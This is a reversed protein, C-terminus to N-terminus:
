AASSEKFKEQLRSHGRLLFPTKLLFNVFLMTHVKGNPQSFDLLNTQKKYPFSPCGFTKKYLTICTLERVGQTHCGVYHLEAKHSSYIIPGLM